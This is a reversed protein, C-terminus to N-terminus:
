DAKHPFMINVEHKLSGKPKDLRHEIITEVIEEVEEEVPNDAGLFYFSIWGILMLVSVLAFLYAMQNKKNIIM